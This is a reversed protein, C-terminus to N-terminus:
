FYGQIYQVGLQWLVAMTNANEVREGITQVERRRAAEVLARVQRQVEPDGALGQILTGDIKVFDLPVSELLGPSDRGSGFGELAFRFGRRRLEGALARVEPVHSSASEETVQFCLRRAEAQHTRLNQDLWELFAPDRLTERSLRVFLCEPRKQAAFSLSAGVVWRDINRLLDNRGAAAMFESPLVERGQADIMRVLVDYMGPDDGLLSAIPQQVLRFRNEMLAAKIHRVWIKDYAQVRTDSDARGLSYVQNGGNEGGKRCAEVADAVPGAIESVTPPVLGLGVTATASLTRAEVKFVTTALKRVLHEAWAEVDRVTGREILFMLSASTFRGALDSPASEARVVAAFQAILDEAQLAGVQSVLQDVRDLRICAIYRVGGKVPEALRAKLQEVLYRRHLMGTAPDTRVAEALRRQIEAEDHRRSPVILRVVPEGDFEGQSLTMELPLQTGDALQATVRLQHDSWKGTLCAALGGKLAAHSEADFLDMLPQGRVADADSHGYLELWAPNADVVIGEHVQAIADASGEVFAALERQYERASSLTSNLARELRFARLERACVLQLREPHTLSVVEQAGARLAETMSAEDVRESVLIVPVPPQTRARLESLAEIPLLKEDGFVVLLEPNIQILADVLDRADPLWTCHVAHGARRLTQNIAEVHDQSKTLVLMPVPASEPAAPKLLSEPM